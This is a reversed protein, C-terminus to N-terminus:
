HFVLSFYCSIICFLLKLKIKCSFSPLVYPSLRSLSFIVFLSICRSTQHDVQSEKENVTLILVTLQFIADSNKFKDVVQPM